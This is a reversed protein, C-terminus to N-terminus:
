TNLYKGVSASILPSVSFVCTYVAPSYSVTLLIYTSVGTIVDMMNYAATSELPVVTDLGPADRDRVYLTCCFHVCTASFVRHGTSNKQRQNSCQYTPYLLTYTSKYLANNYSGRIRESTSWMTKGEGPGQISNYQMGDHM